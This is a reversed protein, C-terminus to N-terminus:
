RLVKSAVVGGVQLFPLDRVSVDSIDVNGMRCADFFRQMIVCKKLFFLLKM